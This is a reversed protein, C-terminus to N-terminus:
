YMILNTGNWYLIQSSSNTSGSSKHITSTQGTINIGNNQITIDNNSSNKVFWVLGANGLGLGATTFNQTSGSTIIYSTNANTPILATTGATQIVPPPNQYASAGGLSLFRWSFWTNLDSTNTVGQAAPTGATFSNVVRCNIVDGAVLYLSSSLSQAYNRGTSISSNQGIYLTEANPSRTIDVSIQKLVDTWTVGTGLISVNWDLQYLGTQVVIFDTTGNVHTIYGGDNNWTGTLDFTIDTAGNVLNQNASKYYTSQYIQNTNAITINSGSPTVSIGSAGVLNLSGSLSNLSTVGSASPPYPSGNISGVNTIALSNTTKGTIRDTVIRSTAAGVDYTTIDTGYIGLGGGITTVNGIQVLGSTVLLNGSVIEAAGSTLLLNGSALSLSGSSLSIAGSDAIAIGAGASIGIGLGGTIAVGGGGSIAVGGVGTIACGGVGTIDVGATSNLAITGLSDVNVSTAPSVLSGVNFSGVIANFDPRLPTNSNNGIQINANLSVDPYSVGPNLTTVTLNHNPISVNSIAPFNAWNSAGSIPSGNVELGGTGATLIANNGGTNLTVSDVNQLGYNNVNVNSSAPVSSWNPVVPNVWTIKTGDSSLYQGNTGFSGNVNKIQDVSLSSGTPGQITAPLQIVSGNVVIDTSGTSGLSLYNSGNKIKYNNVNVDQSAPISSWNPIDIWTIKTGNSSLYQGNTGFNGGVNKIQDVSLSSGTPGQIVAPLQIVSGNVVIDTSGTAGLSLYNSGNELKFDNMNVNAFAPYLSWDAVDQIDGAKALLETNYFLDGGIGKLSNNVSNVQLIIEGSNVQLNNVETNTSVSVNTLNATQGVINGVNNLDFNSIDVNQVAPYKSWEDPRASITTAFYSSNISPFTEVNPSFGSSRVPLPDAFKVKKQALVPTESGWTNSKFPFTTPPLSISKLVPVPVPVPVPSPPVLIPSPPPSPLPVHSVPTIIRNTTPEFISGIFDM